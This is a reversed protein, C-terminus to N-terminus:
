PARKCFLGVLQLVFIICVNRACPSQVYICTYIMNLTVIARVKLWLTFIARPSKLIQITVTYTVCPGVTVNYMICKTVCPNQFTRQLWMRVSHRKTVNHMHTTVNHYMQIMCLTAITVNHMIYVYIYVYKTVNHVICEYWACYLWTTFLIYM